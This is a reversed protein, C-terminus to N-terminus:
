LVGYKQYDLNELRSSCPSSDSIVRPHSECHHTKLQFLFSTDIKFMYIQNKLFVEHMKRYSLSDFSFWERDALFVRSIANRGLFWCCRCLSSQGCSDVQAAVLRFKANSLFILSMLHQIFSHPFPFYTATSM